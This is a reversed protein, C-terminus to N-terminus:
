RMWAPRCRRMTSPRAPGCSTRGPARRARCREGLVVVQRLLPLAAGPLAQDLAPEVQMLLDLFDIGLFTDATLLVKVDAQKLCFALEDTKFRTNVPVTVAGLLACAYFVQVWTGGNGLLVGVHDGRRVGAAHLGRAIRRAGDQLAAWTHREGPAVFAEAAGREAVQRALARSLTTPGIMGQRGGRRLRRHGAELRHRAPKGRDGAARDGDRRRADDGVGPRHQAQDAQRDAARRAIAAAMQAAEAALAEPAYVQNVLGIERAEAADFRRGTFLLEKAKRAGAVRPLRQTAGVTGWGVEPYCFTAESSALVFDCAAAIECGSGFAAGQVVAIVPQPMREIAAYAAFGQVRRATMEANSMTKREKLDAGACFAAGAAAILVVHADPDDALHQMAQVLEACMLSNLANRSDPRNLTVTAVRDQVDLLITHFTPTM